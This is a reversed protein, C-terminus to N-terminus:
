RSSVITRQLTTGYSRVQKIGKFKRIGHEGPNLFMPQIVKLGERIYWGDKFKWKKEEKANLTM